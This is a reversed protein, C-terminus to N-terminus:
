FGEDRAVIFCLLCCYSPIDSPHCVAETSENSNIVIIM